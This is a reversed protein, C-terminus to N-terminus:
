DAPEQSPAPRSEHPCVHGRHHDCRRHEREAGVTWQGIKLLLEPALRTPPCVPVAEDGVIQQWHDGVASPGNGHGEQNDYHISGCIGAVDRHPAAGTCPGAECRRRTAAGGFTLARLMSPRQKRGTGDVGSAASVLPPDLTGADADPRQGDNQDRDRHRYDDHGNHEEGRAM